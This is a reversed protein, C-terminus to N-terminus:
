FLKWFYRIILEEVILQVSTFKDGIQAFYFGQDSFQVNQVIIRYWGNTTSEFLIRNDGNSKDLIQGDKHWYVDLNARNMSVSIIATEGQMVFQTQPSTLFIEENTVFSNRNQQHPSEFNDRIEEEEEENNEEIILYAVPYIEGNIKISYLQGDEHSVNYIVLVNIFDHFHCEFKGNETFIIQENQGRIWEINSLNSICDSNLECTISATSGIKIVYAPIDDLDEEQGGVLITTTGSGTSHALSKQSSRKSASCLSLNENGGNNGRFHNSESVSIQKLVSERSLSSEISTSMGFSLGSRNDDIQGWPIEELFVHVSDYDSKANISVAMRTHADTYGPSDSNEREIEEMITSKLLPSGSRILVKKECFEESVMVVSDRGCESMREVDVQFNNGCFTAKVSAHQEPYIVANLISHKNRRRLFFTETCNEESEIEEDIIATEQQYTSASPVSSLASNRRFLIPVSLCSSNDVASSAISVSVAEEVDDDDISSNSRKFKKLNYSLNLIQRLLKGM